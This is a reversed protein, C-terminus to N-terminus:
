RILEKRLERVVSLLSIFRKCLAYKIIFETYKVIMDIRQTRNIQIAEYKILLFFSDFCSINADFGNSMLISQTQVITATLKIIWIAMTIIFKGRISTEKPLREVKALLIKADLLIIIAAVGKTSMKVARERKYRYWM